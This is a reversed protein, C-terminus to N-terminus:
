FEAHARVTGIAVPGRDCNTARITASWSCASVYHTAKESLALQLSQLPLYLLKDAKGRVFKALIGGSVFDVDSQWSYVWEVPSSKNLQSLM